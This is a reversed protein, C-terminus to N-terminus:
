GGGWRNVKLQNQFSSLIGQAVYLLEWQSYAGEGGMYWMMRAM